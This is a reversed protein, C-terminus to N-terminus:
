SGRCSLHLPKGQGKQPYRSHFQKSKWLFRYFYSPTVALGGSILGMSAFRTTLSVNTRRTAQLIIFFVDVQNCAILPFLL